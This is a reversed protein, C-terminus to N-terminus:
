AHLYDLLSRITTAETHHPGRVILAYRGDQAQLIDAMRADTPLVGAGIISWDTNGARCLEDVYTALHARHFGGVGIHVISRRLAERDYGVALSSTENQDQAV